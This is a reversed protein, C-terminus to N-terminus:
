VRISQKEGYMRIMKKVSEVSEGIEKPRGIVVLVAGAM